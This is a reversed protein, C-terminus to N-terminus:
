CAMFLALHYHNPLTHYSWTINLPQRTPYNQAMQCSWSLPSFMVLFTFVLCLHAFLQPHHNLQCRATASIFEMLFYELCIFVVVLFRTTQLQLTFKFPMENDILMILPTHTASVVTPPSYVSGTTSRDAWRSPFSPTPDLWLAACRWHACTCVAWWRGISCVGGWPSTGGPCATCLYLLQAM